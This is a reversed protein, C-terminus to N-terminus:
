LWRQYATMLASLIDDLMPTLLLQAEEELTAFASCAAEQVQSPYLVFPLM